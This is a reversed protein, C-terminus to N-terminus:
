LGPVLDIVRQLCGPSSHEADIFMGPTCGAIAPDFGGVVRAGHAAALRATIAEVRELGAGYPTGAVQGFFDPNFPPHILVVRVGREILLALLRDVAAVADMDIDLALNRRQAVASRVEDRTLVTSFHDRHADSWRISGDAQLVNMTPLSREDVPGPRVDAGLWRLGNDLMTSLSMLGLWRRLPRTELWPVDAIGLRAKMANADPLSTLWLTDTRQAEPLFTMDRISMILTQPLRDHRLLMEVV